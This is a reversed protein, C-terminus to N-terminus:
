LWRKARFLILLLVTLAGMAGSLVWFAYPYDQLPLAVNMGYISAGIFFPLALTALVTLIRMVDNTRHEMLSRHTDWLGDMVAQVDELEAWLRRMHDALDGFYIDPDLRLFPYENREMQELVGIQPRM